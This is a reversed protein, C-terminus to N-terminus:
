KKWNSMSKLVTSAKPWKTKKTQEPFNLVKLIANDFVNKLDSGQNLASCEVYKVAGVEKALEEGLDKTLPKQQYRALKEITPTDNRLDIQTGVM